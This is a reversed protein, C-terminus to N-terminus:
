RNEVPSSAWLARTTPNSARCSVAPIRSSWSAAQCLRSLMTPMAEFEEAVNANLFEIDGNSGTIKITEMDNSNKVIIDGNVAQGGVTVVGDSGAM